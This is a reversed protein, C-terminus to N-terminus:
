FLYQCNNESGEKQNHEEECNICVEVAASPFESLVLDVVDGEMVDLAIACSTVGSINSFM